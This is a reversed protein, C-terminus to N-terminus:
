IDTRGRTRGNALEDSRGGARGHTWEAARGNARRDTRGVAREIVWDGTTLGLMYTRMLTTFVREALGRVKVKHKYDHNPANSSVFQLLSQRPM